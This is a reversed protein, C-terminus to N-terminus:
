RDLRLINKVDTKGQMKIYRYKLDNNKYQSIRERQNSIAFALGFITIVMVVMSLFVMSSGIEIVHRHEHKVPKRVEEIVTELRETLANVASLDIQTPITATAQSMEMLKDKIQIELEKVGEFGSNPILIV